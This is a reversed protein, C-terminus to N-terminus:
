KDQLAAVGPLTLGELMELSAGGGTSIHTIKDALGSQKVAAVSEGGGVITVAESEAAAQAIAFTGKAFAPFEFVGMPGNWVVTKAEGIIKAFHVVTEPGIDLIRWGDPIPGTSMTKQAADAEFKDAIVVDVPLRFKTGAQELIEKATDLADDEVLSDGVPYGEAKFFTNAMGGGILISDAKTLLNKIVGIKDSIKAGGLIAVFPKEPNAVAQGLYKIEKELLFGAVAPLFQAVGETSAHARHASGFADNVYVDALSALQKAIEPDNKTEGAHFRTNELLLVDGPKLAKAADEAKPGICDEAFAVPKDILKGLYEAVPRLSFEPKVEGKPRGLHSCLILAAGNELLYNITPLAARIRTDDGVVGEKVPVNFDVRVLVRKDKVDIDRITKKNFM